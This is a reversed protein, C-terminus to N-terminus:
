IFRYTPFGDLAAEDLPPVNLRTLSLALEEMGDMESTQPRMKLDVREVADGGRDLVLFTFGRRAAMLRLVPWDEALWFDAPPGGTEIRLSHGGRALNPYWHLEMIVGGPGPALPGGHLSRDVAYAALIPGDDEEQLLTPGVREDSLGIM